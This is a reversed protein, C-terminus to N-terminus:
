VFNYLLMIGIFKGSDSDVHEQTDLEAALACLLISFSWGIIYRLAFVAVPM